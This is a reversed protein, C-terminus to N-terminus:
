KTNYQIYGKNQICLHVLKTRNNWRKVVLNNEHFLDEKNKRKSRKGNICLIMMIGRMLIHVMRRRRVMTVMTGRVVIRRHMVTIIVLAVVIMLVVVSIITMFLYMIRHDILFPARM